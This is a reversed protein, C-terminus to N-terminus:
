VGAGVGFQKSPKGRASTTHSCAMLVLQECVDEYSLNVCAAAKPLLSTPTFGPITNVELVVPVHEQNLIIDVRSLHRCGLAKHAALGAAQVVRTVHASLPAPVLYETEGATYKATFDFFPHRPRIEVVPLATEGLVGVTVERGQIFAEMLVPGGYRKAEAIAGALDEPRRVVSVGLSSGQSVPKVVLPYALGPDTRDSPEGELLRWRPVTLGAAECARRSAIKNMGLRSATPDSGTYAVQLEECLQQITGDEGFAGHLAIFVVDAGSHQLARRTFALVEELNPLRPIVLPEAIWRRATLAGVVGQGSRLSIEHEGSPGGMAVAVKIHRKM